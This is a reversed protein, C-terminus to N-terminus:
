RRAEYAHDRHITRHAHCRCCEEIIEGSHLVIGMAGEFPHWCHHCSEVKNPKM